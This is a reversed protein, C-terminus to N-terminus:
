SKIDKAKERGLEARIIDYSHEIIKKKILTSSIKKTYPLFVVEKNKRMWDLGPVHKGKWDSGITLCDVRHKRLTKIDLLKRQVIVKDVYRCSQIIAIRQQFPIVPKVKKYTKVLTDTSVGVILIDGLAKSERLINLHGVNFLDFTGATYIIRKKTM